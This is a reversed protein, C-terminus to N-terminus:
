KKLIEIVECERFLWSGGVKELSCNLEHSEDVYDGNTMDGTVKLTLTVKAKDEDPFDIELDYFRVSLKRFQLRARAISSSAELRTFSGSFSPYQSRFECTKTFFRALATAHKATGWATEDQERSVLEALSNFQKKVKRKESLFLQNAAAFGLILALGVAGVTKGRVM